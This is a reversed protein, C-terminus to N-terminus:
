LSGIRTHDFNRDAEWIRFKTIEKQFADVFWAMLSIDDLLGIGPIFDPIIDLPTVLYLLVAVGILLSKNAVQRYDGRMYARILRIFTTMFEKLQEFGSQTSDVDVLKGYASTLLVGLKMPKTLYGGAKGLFKKFIPNQSYKFGKQIWENIM